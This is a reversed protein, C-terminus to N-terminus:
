RRRYDHITSLIETWVDEVDPQVIQTDVMHWYFLKEQGDSVAIEILEDEQFVTLDLFFDEGMFSAKHEIFKYGNISQDALWKVSSLKKNFGRLIQFFKTM